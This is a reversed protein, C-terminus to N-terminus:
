TPVFLTNRFVPGRDWGDVGGEVFVSYFLFIFRTRIVSVTSYRIMMTVDEYNTNKNIFRLDKQSRLFYQVLSLDIM